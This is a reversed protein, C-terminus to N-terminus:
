KPARRRARLRVDPLAPAPLPGGTDEVRGFRGRPDASVARRTLGAQWDARARVIEEHTRAVFNWWMVIEEAFPEGGILVLRAPGDGANGLALSSRGTPAYALAAPPVPTGDLTVQGSDVLVGHEFGPDVDLRLTAGADLDIQACVLPTFVTAPSVAGGLGGLIVTTRSGDRELVPLRAHHEFFPQRDRVADPLAVWLQVGHLVPPRDFAPSREAHSIGRGATMISLEGPVVRQESGASDRHEIAGDFLWSVTQLGTHPHVPVQMGDPRDAAPVDEPQGSEGPLGVDDPGYHDLFCWAGVLSRTRQPLTRRVTMARLGGLPVDRPELIEVGGSRPGSRARAQLEAPHDEVNSM